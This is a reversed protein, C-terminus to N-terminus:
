WSLVDVCSIACGSMVFWCLVDVVLWSLVDVCVLWSLVDVCMLWSACGYVTSRSLVDVCVLWSLM